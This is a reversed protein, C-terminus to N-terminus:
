LNRLAIGAHRQIERITNRREANIANRLSPRATPGGDRRIGNEVFPAYDTTQKDAGYGFELQSANRVRWGISRRLRGTLNAHSQGPASARHLRRRGPIRYLRGRKVETRGLIANDASRKYRAGVQHLAYRTQRVTMRQIRNIRTVGIIGTNHGTLVIM